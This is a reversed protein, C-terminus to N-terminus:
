DYNLRTRAPRMLNRDGDLVYAANKSYFKNLIHLSADEWFAIITNNIKYLLSFNKVLM